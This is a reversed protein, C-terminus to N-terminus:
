LKGRQIKQVAFRFVAEPMLPLALDFCSIKLDVGRLRWLRRWAGKERRALAARAQTWEEMRRQPAGLDVRARFEDSRQVARQVRKENYDKKCSVGGLTPTQNVDHIRYRVLVDPLSIIKGRTAAILGLWQDHVTWRPFPLAAKAADARVLCACGTIFNTTLFVPALGEGSRYVIHPKAQRVSDATRRGEGDIVSLDCCVLQANERELAEALRALKDPEWVDDQDCYALLEGDAEQTLLGFTENSGLNRENRTCTCPFATICERVMREVQEFPFRPSADDRIRLRFPRYTQANLSLLQERLWKPNPEYVAMLIEISRM